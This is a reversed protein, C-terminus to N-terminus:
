RNPTRLVDPVELMRQCASTLMKPNDVLVSTALLVAALTYDVANFHARAYCFFHYDVQRLQEKTLEYSGMGPSHLTLTVYRSGNGVGTITGYHPQCETLSFEYATGDGPELHYRRSPLQAVKNRLM